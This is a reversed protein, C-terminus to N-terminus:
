RARKSSNVSKGTRRPNGSGDAAAAAAEEPAVTVGATIAEVNVFFRFNGNQMVGLRFEVNISANPQLPASVTVSPAVLTSNIGGGEPQDFSQGLALGRLLVSQNNSDTVTVDASTIARLDAQGPQSNGKTTLDVVRFRLRNIKQGTSNTFKRRILLTGFAANQPNANAATRVRACATTPAGNGACQPDVLQTKITANRQIHSALNEPGPAGLVSQIGGFSAANTSVLLFDNGNIDTDQPTGNTMKRVFSYQGDDTTIVPLGFQERFFPNNESNFGVADLRNGAAPYQSPDSTRVLAIGTNDPIDGGYFTDPSAYPTLSYGSGNGALYHGRAPIITGRPIVFRVSAGVSDSSVVVWGTSGDPTNVVFDSDTNNYVEIFEDRSGGADVDGGVPFPGRFRFESILMQGAVPLITRTFTVTQNGQYGTFARSAPFFMSDAQAAAVTYNGGAVLGEFLYQGNADTTTSATTSGTLNITIGPLPNGDMDIVQGELILSTATVGLGTLMQGDRLGGTRCQYQTFSGASDGAPVSARQVGTTADFGNGPVTGYIIDFRTQGEYLRIEFNLSGSPKGLASARWEINFIRNPATGSVSTFIGEGAGGITMDSFFPIIANGFQTLPQCVEFQGYDASASTFQLNGNSSVNASTYSNGYFMYAFPLAITAVCDDGPRPTVCNFGTVATTGPVISAGRTSTFRYQNATQASADFSAAGFFFLSFMFGAVATRALSFQVLSRM